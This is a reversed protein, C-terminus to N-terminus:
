IGDQPDFRRSPNREPQAHFVLFCTARVSACSANLPMVGMRTVSCGVEPGVSVAAECSMDTGIRWNAQERVCPDDALHM